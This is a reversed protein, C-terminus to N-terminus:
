NQLLQMGKETHRVPWCLPSIHPFWQWSTKNTPKFRYLYSRHILCSCLDVFLVWGEEFYLHNEPNMVQPHFNWSPDMGVRPELYWFLFRAYWYMPLIFLLVISYSINIVFLVSTRTTQTNTFALISHSASFCFRPCLISVLHCFSQLSM